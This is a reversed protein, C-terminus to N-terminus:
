RKGAARKFDERTCEDGSYRAKEYILALQEERLLSGCERATYAGLPRSSEKNILNERKTWVRQKYLRRIKKTPDLFAWFDKQAKREKKTEYKERIDRSNDIATGNTILKKQRFRESIMKILRFLFRGFLLLLLVPVLIGIVKELIQWLLGPEGMEMAMSAPAASSLDGMRTPPREAEQQFFSAILAFFGEDRLWIIGRKLVGFIQALWNWDSVLLIAAMGSLTFAVSLKAGSLFIERQPIYGTSGTNVTLFYLYHQFYCRIYYCIFYFIIMGIFYIDAETHEVYHLLFLSLAIIGVAAPPSIISDLREETRIRLSFSYITLGIGYLCVLAKVALGSVPASFLFVLCLLHSGAMILFHNTYRRIFFFMVPLLACVVWLALPPERKGLIAATVVISFLTWHNMQTALIDAGAIIKEQKM